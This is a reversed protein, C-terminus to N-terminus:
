KTRQFSAYEFRQLVQQQLMKRAKTLQSRSTSEGIELMKGIEKHSYGEIIYLNFVVRYGDPLQAILDMLEKESLQSYIAPEASQEQYNEIGPFEQKFSKKNYFKLASNVMIRRVWGEFSGEFRYKSINDFVRIFGEQLIDEAEARNRAYRLCVSMMKGSLRSFLERQCAKDERICGKILKTEIM